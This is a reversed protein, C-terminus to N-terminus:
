DFIYEIKRDFQKTVKQGVQKLKDLDIGTEIGLFNLAEIVQETAVNGVSKGAYPCGGLGGVSSDVVAVGRELAVLINEVASGFTDHFHVALKESPITLNDFLAKTKEPTGAGITDGLSVEYCGLELLRRAVENVAAPEIHGEYPCGLVCSVYGRVQVNKDRAVRCVEEFKKISEEISCNINKRCFSESAATFVAYENAESQLAGELGKANPVLVSYIVGPQQSVRRMVEDTSAMQPVWKPSVFSGVEVHKIGANVLEDILQIRFDPSIIEKENQLGDRPGVEVVRVRKPLTIKKDLALKKIAQLQPLLKQKLM